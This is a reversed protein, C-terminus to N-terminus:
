LLREGLRGFTAGKAPTMRHGCKESPCVYSAEAERWLMIRPPWECKCLLFGLEKAAAAESRKLSEEAKALMARAEETHRDGKPLLGIATKIIDLTTKGDRLWDGLSTPDVHM